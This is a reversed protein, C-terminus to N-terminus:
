KLNHLRLILNRVSKLRTADNTRKLIQNMKVQSFIGSTQSDSHHLQHSHESKSHESIPLYSSIDWRVHRDDETSDQRAVKASDNVSSSDFNLKRDDNLYARFSLYHVTDLVSWIKM